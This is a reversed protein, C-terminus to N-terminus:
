NQGLHGELRTEWIMKAAEINRADATAVLDAYALVPHVFGTYPEADRWFSRYVEVRNEDRAEPQAKRLRFGHLLEAVRTEGVYVTAVQPRLYDTLKAGAIEGGWYAHLRKIDARKWWEGDDAAFDGVKQKPKLREPYLEVWRDLLRRGNVL